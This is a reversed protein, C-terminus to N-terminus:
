VHLNSSFIQIVKFCTDGVKKQIMELENQRLIFGNLPARNTNYGADNCLQLYVLM